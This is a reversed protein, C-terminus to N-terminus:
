RGPLCCCWSHGGGGGGAVALRLNVPSLVYLLCTARTDPPCSLFAPPSRGRTTGTGPERYGTIELPYERLGRARETVVSRLRRPPEIGHESHSLSGSTRHCATGVGTGKLASEPRIVSLGPPPLQLRARLRVTKGPPPAPVPGANRAPTTSTEPRRPRPRRGAADLGPGVSDLGAACPPNSAM